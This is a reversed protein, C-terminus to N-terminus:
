PHACQCWQVCDTGSVSGVYYVSADSPGADPTPTAGGSPWFEPQAAAFKVTGSPAAAATGLCSTITGVGSASSHNACGDAGHYIRGRQNPPLGLAATGGDVSVPGACVEVCPLPAGCTLDTAIVEATGGDQAIPVTTPSGSLTVPQTAKCTSGGDVTKDCTTEVVSAANSGALAMSGIGAAAVLALALALKAPWSWASSPTPVPSM